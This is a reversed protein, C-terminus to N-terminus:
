QILIKFRSAHRQLSSDDARLCNEEVLSTSLQREGLSGLKRTRFLQGRSAEFTDDNSVVSECTKPDWGLGAFISTNPDDMGEISVLM